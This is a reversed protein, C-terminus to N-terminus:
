HGSLPVPFFALISFINCTISNEAPVIMNCIFIKRVEDSFDLHLM